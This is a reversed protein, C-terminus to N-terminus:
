RADNRSGRDQGDQAPPQAAKAAELKGKISTRKEKDRCEQLKASAWEPLRDPRIVGAIDGRTWRSSEGTYLNQVLVSQGRGTPSCGFGGTAIGLQQDATRAEPVMVEPKIVVVQGDLNKGLGDPTCDAATLTVPPIGREQREQVLAERQAGLRELFIGVAELYDDCGVGDRFVDVGLPNDWTCTCVLFSLEEKPAEALIVEQGGLRFCAQETYGSITRKEEAM